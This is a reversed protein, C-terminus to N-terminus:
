LIQCRNFIISKTCNLSYNHVTLELMALMRIVFYGTWVKNVRKERRKWTRSNTDLDLHFLMALVNPTVGVIIRQM